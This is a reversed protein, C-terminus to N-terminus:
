TGPPNVIPNDLLRVEAEIAPQADTPVLRSWLERMLALSADAEDSDITLMQRPMGALRNLLHEIARQRDRHRADRAIDLEWAVLEAYSTAELIVENLSRRHPRGAPNGSQGPKWRNPYAENAQEETLITVVTVNYCLRM